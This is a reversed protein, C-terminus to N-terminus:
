VLGEKAMQARIRRLEMFVTRQAANWWRRPRRTPNTRTLRRVAEAADVVEPHYSLLPRLRRAAQQFDNLNATVLLTARHHAAVAYHLFDVTLPDQFELVQSVARRAAASVSVHPISRCLRQSRVKKHGRRDMREIEADAVSSTILKAGCRPAFDLLAGSQDATTPDIAAYCIVVTDLYLTRPM